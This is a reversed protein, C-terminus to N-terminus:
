MISERYEGTTGFMTAKGTLETSILQVAEFGCVVCEERAVTDLVAFSLEAAIGRNGGWFYSSPLEHRSKSMEDFYPEGFV